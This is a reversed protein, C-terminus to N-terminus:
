PPHNEPQLALRALFDAAAAFTVVSFLGDTRSSLRDAEREVAALRPEDPVTVVVRPMVDRPGLQGRAMFDLYDSLKRKITPLSESGRDVELWSLEDFRATSLVVFADPKIFGGLGDPWWCAPETQFTTVTFAQGRAQEALRVYLEAVDLSHALFLASPTWPRRLRGTCPGAAAQALRQGALDLAFIWGSSGSRVGGVIRGLRTAIRLRTLRELVRRRVRDRTQASLDHFHLRTLQHGTLMRAAALSRLIAWDRDSLLSAIHEAEAATLRRGTM